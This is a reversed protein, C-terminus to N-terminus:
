FLRCRRAAAAEAGATIDGMGAGRGSCLFRLTTTITTARRHLAIDEAESAEAVGALGAALAAALAEEAGAAEAALAGASAEGVEEAEQVAWEEEPVVAEAM